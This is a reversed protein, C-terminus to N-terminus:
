INIHILTKNYQIKNVTNPKINMNNLIYVYIILIKKINYKFTQKNIWKIKNYLYIYTYRYINKKIIHLINNHITIVKYQKKKNVKM